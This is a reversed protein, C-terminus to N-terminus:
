KMEALYDVVHRVALQKMDIPQGTRTTAFEAVERFDIERGVVNELESSIDLFDISELGLDSVLRSNETIVLSPNNVVERIVKALLSLTENQM